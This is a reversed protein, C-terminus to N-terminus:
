AEGAFRRQLPKLRFRLQGAQTGQHAASILIYRCIPLLGCTKWWKKVQHPYSELRHAYIL